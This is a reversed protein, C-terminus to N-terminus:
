NYNVQQVFIPSARNHQILWMSQEQEGSCRDPQAYQVGSTGAHMVWHGDKQQEHAAAPAQSSFPMTTTSAYPASANHQTYTFSCLDESTADITSYIPGETSDEMSFKETQSLYNSIGAEACPLLCPHACARKNLENM